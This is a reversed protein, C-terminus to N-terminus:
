NGHMKRAETTRNNPPASVEVPGDLACRRAIRITGLWALIIGVEIVADGLYISAITGRAVYLVDIGTLALSSLLGLLAVDATVQRHWAAHLLVVAIALILLSITNLMWHDVETPPSAILHDSKRGTVRQFTEVSVLPWLGTAAFYLGQVWCVGVVWRSTWIFPAM